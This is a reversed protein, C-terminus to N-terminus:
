NIAVLEKKVLRSKLRHKLYAFYNVKKWYTVSGNIRDYPNSCRAVFYNYKSNKRFLNM